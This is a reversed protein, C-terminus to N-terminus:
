VLANIEPNLENKKEGYFKQTVNTNGLVAPVYSYYSTYLIYIIAFLFTSVSYYLCLPRSAVTTALAITTSKYFVRIALKTSSSVKYKVM